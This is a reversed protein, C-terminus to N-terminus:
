YALMRSIVPPIDSQEAITEKLGTHGSFPGTGILGDNCLNRAVLNRSAELLDLVRASLLERVPRTDQPGAVM